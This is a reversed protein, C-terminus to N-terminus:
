LLIRTMMRFCKQRAMLGSLPNINTARKKLWEGALRVYETAVILEKSMLATEDLKSPAAAIISVEDFGLNLIKEVDAGTEAVWDLGTFGADHSGLGLLDGINKPKIIKLDIWDCEIAPRYNRDSPHILYGADRFLQLVSNFLRGKPLLVRLKNM